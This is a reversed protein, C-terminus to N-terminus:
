LYKGMKERVEDLWATSIECNKLALRRELIRLENRHFELVFLNGEYSFKSKTFRELHSDIGSVLSTFLHYPKSDKICTITLDQM